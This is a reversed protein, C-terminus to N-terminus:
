PAVGLLYFLGARAWEYISYATYALGLGFLLLVIAMFINAAILTFPNPKM